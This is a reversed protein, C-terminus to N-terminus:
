TRYPETFYISKSFRVSLYKPSIRKCVRVVEVFAFDNEDPIRCLSTHNRAIFMVDENKVGIM